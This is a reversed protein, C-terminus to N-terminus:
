REPRDCACGGRTIQMNKLNLRFAEAERTCGYLLSHQFGRAVGPTCGGGSAIRHFEERKKFRDRFRYRSQDPAPAILMARTVAGAQGRHLDPRLAALPRWSKKSVRIAMRNM